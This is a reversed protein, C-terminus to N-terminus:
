PGKRRARARVPAGDGEGGEVPVLLQFAEVEFAHAIADLTRLTPSKKGAELSQIATTSLGVRDALEPQSWGRQLRLLRVHRACAEAAGRSTLARAKQEVPAAAAHELRVDALLQAVDLGLGRALRLVTLMTPNSAGSEVLQLHRVDLGARTALAELTWGRSIRTARATRGIAALADTLEADKRM